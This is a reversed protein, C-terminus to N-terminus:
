AGVEGACMKDLAASARGVLTQLVSRKWGSQPNGPLNRVPDEADILRPINAVGAAAFCSGSPKRSAAVSVLPFSFREREGLRLYISAPPPPPLRVDTILEDPELVLLSRNTATPLRFLDLLELERAGARSRITV